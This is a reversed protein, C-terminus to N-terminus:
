LVAMEEKFAKRYIILTTAAILVFLIEAIASAYGLNFPAIKFGVNYIYQVITETKYLPGGQTMVYIQDFVKLADIMNTILCFSLTPFLQPLTIKAHLMFTGAGDIQAAEYYSQPIAQIGAVLIIMNLGFTKWVTMGIVTPMALNPNKLFTVGTIGISKLFYTYIGLTPDLIISWLIGIATMSCVAPLFLLSRSFRRFWSNKSVYIALILAIGTQLPVEFVTFRFTNLLANWFRQDTLLKKFNELGAFSINTLFIDIKLFSMGFSMFIPIVYFVLLLLISPLVFFYASIHPKRLTALLHKM